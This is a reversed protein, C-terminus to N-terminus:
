RVKHDNLLFVLKETSDKEVLFERQAIPNKRITKVTEPV